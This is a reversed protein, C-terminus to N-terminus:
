LEDVRDTLPGLDPTEDRELDVYRKISMLV